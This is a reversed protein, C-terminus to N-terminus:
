EPPWCRSDAPLHFDIVQDCHEMMSPDHTSFIITLGSERLNQLLSLISIKMQVDLASTLEDAILIRPHTILARIIAIRQKEGGSLSAAKRHIYDLYDLHM